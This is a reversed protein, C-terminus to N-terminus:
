KSRQEILHTLNKKKFIFEIAQVLIAAQNYTLYFNSLNVAPSFIHRSIMIGSAEHKSLRIHMKEFEEALLLFLL